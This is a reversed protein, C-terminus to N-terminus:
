VKAVIKASFTARLAAKNLPYPVPRAQGGRQRSLTLERYKGDHFTEM